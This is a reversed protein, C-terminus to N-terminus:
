SKTDLYPEFGTNRENVLEKFLKATQNLDDSFWDLGSEISTGEIASIKQYTFFTRLYKRAKEMEAIKDMVVILADKIKGPDYEVDTPM